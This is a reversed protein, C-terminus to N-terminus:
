GNLKGRLTTAFIQTLMTAVPQETVQRDTPNGQDEPIGGDDRCSSRADHWARETEARTSETEEMADAETYKNPGAM